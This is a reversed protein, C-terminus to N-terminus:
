RREVRARSRDDPSRPALAIKDVGRHAVLHAGTQRGGTVINLVGCPLGAYEAADVIYAVSLPTEGAPKLVGTCGALLMPAIKTIAMM